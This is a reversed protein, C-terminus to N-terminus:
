LYKLAQEYVYGPNAFIECETIKRLACISIQDGGLAAAVEELAQKPMHLDIRRLLFTIYIYKHILDRFSFVNKLFIPEAGPLMAEAAVIECIISLRRMDADLEHLYYVDIPFCAFIQPIYSLDQHQIMQEALHIAQEKQQFSRTRIAALTNFLSSTEDNQKHMISTEM